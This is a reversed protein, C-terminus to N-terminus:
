ESYKEVPFVSANLILKLTEYIESDPEDLAIVPLSSAGTSEKSFLKNIASAYDDVDTDDAYLHCVVKKIGTCGSFTSTPFNNLYAALIGDLTVTELSTCDQFANEGMSTVTSGLTISTLSICWEFASKGITLLNAPLVVKQIKSSKFCEEDLSTIGSAGSMDVVKAGTSMFYSPMETITPTASTSVVKWYYYYKPPDTLFFINYQVDNESDTVKDLDLTMWGLDVNWLYSVNPKTNPMGKAATNKYSIYDPLDTVEGVSAEIRSAAVFSGYIIVDGNADATM